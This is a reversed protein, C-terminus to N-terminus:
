STTRSPREDIHGRRRGQHHHGALVIAYTQSGFGLTWPLLFAARNISRLQFKGYWVAHCSVAYRQVAILVLNFTSTYYMSWLFYETYWVKCYVVRAIPDSPVEVYAPHFIVRAAFFVMVGILDITSQHLILKNTASNGTRPNSLFVVCVIGNGLFGAITIIIDM